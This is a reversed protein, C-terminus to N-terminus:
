RRRLGFKGPLLRSAVRGKKSTSSLSTAKATSPRYVPGKNVQNTAVAIRAATNDDKQIARRYVVRPATMTGTLQIRGASEVLPQKTIFGKGYLPSVVVPLWSAANRTLEGSSDAAVNENFYAILQDHRINNLKQKGDVDFSVNSIEAETITSPASGPAGANGDFIVLDKYAGPEVNITQSGPDYYGTRTLQPVGSGDIVEAEVRLTGATISVSGVGFLNAPGTTLELSLNKVLETPIAGDAAGPQREDSFAIEFSVDIDFTTGSGPITTDLATQRGKAQWKLCTLEYGPCDIYKGLRLLTLVQAFSTNPVTDAADKTGSYSALVYIKKIRKLPPLVDMSFTALGGIVANKSGIPYLQM